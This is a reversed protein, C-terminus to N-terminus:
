LERETLQGAQEPDLQLNILILDGDGYKNDYIVAADIALEGHVPDKIWLTGTIYYGGVGEVTDDTKEEASETEFRVFDYSIFGEKLDAQIQKDGPVASGSCGILLCLLFCILLVAARRVM